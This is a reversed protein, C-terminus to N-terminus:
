DRQGGKGENERKALAGELPCSGAHGQRTDHHLIHGDFISRESSDYIEIARRRNLGVRQSTRMNSIGFERLRFVEEIVTVIPVRHEHFTQHPADGHVFRENWGRVHKREAIARVEPGDAGRLFPRYTYLLTGVLVRESDRQDRNCFHRTM